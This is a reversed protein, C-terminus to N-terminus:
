FDKRSVLTKELIPTLPTGQPGPPRRLAGRQDKTFMIHTAALMIRPAATHFKGYKLPTPPNSFTMKCPRAMMKHPIVLM